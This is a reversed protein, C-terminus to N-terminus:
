RLSGINGSHMVLRLFEQLVQLLLEGLLGTGVSARFHSVKKGARYQACDEGSYEYQEPLTGASSSGSFLHALPQLSHNGLTGM